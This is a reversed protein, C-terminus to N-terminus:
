ALFIKLLEHGDNIRVDSKLASKENFLVEDHNSKENRSDYIMFPVFEYSHTRLEVPTPHDSM